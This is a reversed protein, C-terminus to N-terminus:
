RTYAEKLVSDYKDWILNDRAYAQMDQRQEILDGARPKLESLMSVMADQDEFTMCRDALTSRVQTLSSTVMVLCGAHAYEYAKNPNCYPHFWHKKWPVLGLHCGSMTRMMESHSLRGTSVVSPASRLRNDGIVTLSGVGGKQFMDTLGSTDRFRTFPATCTGVYVSRLEEGQEPKSISQIEAKRPFNPVIYVKRTRKAHEAATPESVVITAQAQCLVSHEWSSWLMSKYTASLDLLGANATAERSWYEHDDYVFPVHARVALRAAFIDHAHVLDPKAESIIRKFRKDLRSTSLPEGLNSGLSFVIRQKALFPDSPLSLEEFKPGAFCVEDGNLRSSWAAREVREDPLGAHSLHLVRLANAYESVGYKDTLGRM